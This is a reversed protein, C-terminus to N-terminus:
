AAARGEPEGWAVPERYVLMVVMTALSFPVIGIAIMQLLGSGTVLFQDRGEHLLLQAVTQFAVHLGITAWVSGTVARVMGLVVAIAFFMVLREFAPEGLSVTWLIAGWLAFLVAQVIVAVIRTHREALVTYIYGRMALEEPLAEYLFVLVILLPIFALIEWAPAIPTVSAWGFGLVVALGLACPLLFALVGVVFPKVAARSLPLGLGELTGGDLRRRALVVMPVALLTALVASVIHGPLTYDPGFFAGRVAHLILWIVTLAVFVIGARIHPNTLTM